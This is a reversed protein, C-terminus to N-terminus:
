VVRAADELRLGLLPARREDVVRDVGPPRGDEAAHARHPLPEVARSEDVRPEDREDIATDRRNVAALKSLVDVSRDAALQPKRVLLDLRERVVRQAREVRLGLAHREEVGVRHGHGPEVHRIPQEGHQAPVIVVVLDDLQGFDDRPLVSRALEVARQADGRLSEPLPFAASLISSTNSAVPPPAVGGASSKEGVARVVSLRRGFRPEYPRSVTLPIRSSPKTQWTPKTTAPCGKTM